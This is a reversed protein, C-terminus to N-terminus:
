PFCSCINLLPMNVVYGYICVEVNPLRHMYRHLQWTETVAPTCRKSQDVHQKIAGASEQVGIPQTDGAPERDQGETPETNQSAETQQGNQDDASVDQSSNPEGIQSVVTFPAIYSVFYYNNYECTQETTAQHPMNVLVMSGSLDRTYLEKTEVYVWTDEAPSTIHIHVCPESQFDSCAASCHSHKVQCVLKACKTTNAYYIALFASHTNNRNSTLLLHCM